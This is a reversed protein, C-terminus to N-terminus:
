GQPRHSRLGRRPLNADSMWVKRVFREMGRDWSFLHQEGNSDDTGGMGELALHPELDMGMVGVPTECGSGSDERLRGVCARQRDATQTEVTRAPEGGELLRTVARGSLGQSTHPEQDLGVVVGRATLARLLGLLGPVAM